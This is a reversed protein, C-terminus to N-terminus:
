STAAALASIIRVARNTWTHPRVAAQARRGLAAAFSPDEAIRSIGRALASSNGPEVLVATVGDELIRTLSPLATAIIPTGSAMYEFLKLPSTAYASFDTWPWPIVVMDCARMLLPAETVPVQPIFILRDPPLGCRAAHQRYSPIADAPGGVLLAVARPNRSAFSGVAAILEPIGKEKDGFVRFRGVYGIVIADRPLGSMERCIHRDPLRAFAEADFADPAVLIRASSFGLSRLREGIFPTVVVVLACAPRRAMMRLLVATRRTPLAHEEYVVPFGCVVLLWAILIDRCYYVDTGIHRIRFIASVSWVFSQAVYFFMYFFRPLWGEFLRVIDINATERVTFIPALRYHEFVSVGALAPPQHRRPHLLVVALGARAFAECMKVAQYGHAKEIPLRANLIYTLRKQGM